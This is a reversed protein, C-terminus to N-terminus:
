RRCRGSPAGCAHASNGAQHGSFPQLRRVEGPQGRHAVDERVASRIAGAGPGVAMGRESVPPEADDIKGGARLREAVLVARHLDDEVALDVVVGVEARLELRVAVPVAGPGVGFGDHVRVLLPAVVADM